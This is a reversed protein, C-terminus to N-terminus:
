SEKEHREKFELDEAILADAIEGVDKAIMQPTARGFDYKDLAADIARGKYWQRMTMGSYAETGDPSNCPFALGGTKDSM